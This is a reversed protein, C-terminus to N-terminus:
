MCSYCQQSFSVCYLLLSFLHSFNLYHFICILSQSNSQQNSKPGQYMNFWYICWIHYVGFQIMISRIRLKQPQWLQPTQNVLKGHILSRFLMEMLISTLIVRKVNQANLLSFYMNVTLFIEILHPYKTVLCIVLVHSFWCTWDIILAALM